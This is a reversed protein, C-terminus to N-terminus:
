SKKVYLWKEDWDNEICEVIRYGKPLPVNEGKIHHADYLVERTFVDKICVRM